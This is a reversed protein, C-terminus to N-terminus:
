ALEALRPATDQAALTCGRGLAKAQYLAADARSLMAEITDAGALRMTFGGSYSLEFGLQPQGYEALWRRLRLDYALVAPGDARHLLVCFEEGGYRGVVDGTRSVAQLARTFVRLARDGADHGRQDNIRKFHDLDLMLVGIPSQYRASLTLETVAQALWARRNLAGTLGDITALRQLERAAEDRHALLIAALSLVVTVNAVMAFVLNVPHPAFFDPFQETYFAGLVGRMATVAMQALLSIVLLWRWRGVTARPTRCLSLTLMAMQLTLLGNAWGVRFPYSSFGAGYGVTLLIAIVAPARATAARGCWLDFAIANLAIGGAIGAMSLTSLARDMALGPPFQSSLLLLIWGAAQLAIGAQAWHAAKNVRGMFYPLAVAMVVMNLTMVFLLSAVNIPM